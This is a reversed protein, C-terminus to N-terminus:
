NPCMYLESSSDYMNSDPLDEIQPGTITSLIDPGLFYAKQLCPGQVEMKKMYKLLTLYKDIAFESRGLQPLVQFRQLFPWLSYDVLGPKDGFLFTTNRTEIEKQLFELGKHYNEASTPTLAEANFAATHFASVAEAFLKVILKDQARRLPDSSQLPPKPHKEDLYVNIINSDFIVKRKEYELAPLTGNPNIISIWEPKSEPYFFVLEYEVNKANLVLVCTEAYPCFRPAILRLTGTFGDDTELSDDM